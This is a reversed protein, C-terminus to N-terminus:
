HHKTWCKTNLTDMRNDGCMSGRCTQGNFGQFCAKAKGQNLSSSLADCVQQAEESEFGNLQNAISICADFCGTMSRQYRSYVFINLLRQSKFSDVLYIIQRQGCPYAFRTHLFMRDQLYANM